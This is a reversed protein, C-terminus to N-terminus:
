QSGPGRSIGTTRTPIAKTICTCRIQGSQSVAKEIVELTRYDNPILTDEFEGWIVREAGLRRLAVEQEERRASRDGGRGGDTLVLLYVEDGRAVHKLLAGGCGLEIDDPHAGIALCRM